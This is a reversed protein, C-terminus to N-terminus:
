RQRWRRYVLRLKGIVPLLFGKRSFLAIWVREPGMGLWVIKGEREIRTVRGILNKSAIVDMLDDPTNDGLILWGNGQRGVLRHVVLKESGPRITAVIEGLSPKKKIFPSITIVDGDRIFPTMSWGKAQFRFSCGKALVARMLELLADGSLPLEPGQITILEPRDQRLKLWCRGARWSKWWAWCMRSSRARSPPTNAQWTPPLTGSAASAM